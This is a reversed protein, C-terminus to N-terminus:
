SAIQDARQDAVQLLWGHRYVLRARNPIERRVHVHPASLLIGLGSGPSFNEKLHKGTQRTHEVVLILHAADVSPVSVVCRNPCRQAM